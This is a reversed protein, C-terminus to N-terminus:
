LPHAPVLQIYMKSFLLYPAEQPEFSSLVPRLHIKPCRLTTNEPKPCKKASLFSFEIKIMKNGSKLPKQGGGVATIAPYPLIRDYGLILSVSVSVTDCTDQIRYGLDKRIGYGYGYGYGGYGYGYRGTDEYGAM